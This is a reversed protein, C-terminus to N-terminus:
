FVPIRAFVGLEVSHSWSRQRELREVSVVQNNQYTVRTRDAAVQLQYYELGLGIRVRGATPFSWAASIVMYPVDPGAHWAGGGGLGFGLNRLVHLNLRIDSTYFRKRQLEHRETFTYSWDGPTAAEAVVDCGGIEWGLPYARATATVSLHKQLRPTTLAFGLGTSHSPTCGSYGVGPGSSLMQTLQPSVSWEQSHLVVPTFTMIAVCRIVVYWARDQIM